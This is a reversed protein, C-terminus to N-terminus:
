QLLVQVSANQLSSDDPGGCHPCRIRTALPQLLGMPPDYDSLDALLAREFVKMPYVILREVPYLRIGARRCFESLRTLNEKASDKYFVCLGLVQSTSAVYVVAAMAEPLAGPHEIPVNGGVPFVDTFRRAVEVTCESRYLAQLGRKLAQHEKTFAIVPPHRHALETVKEIEMANM